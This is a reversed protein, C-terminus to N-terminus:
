PLEIKHYEGETIENLIKTSLKKYETDSLENRSSELIDLMVKPNSISRIMRGNSVSPVEGQEYLRYQNIGIGLILSMKQASIGYRKRIAM